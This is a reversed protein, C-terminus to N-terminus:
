FLCDNKGSVFAAILERHGPSLPSPGRMVAQTFRALHDTAEPKWAFLHWIEPIPHGAKELQDIRAGLPGPPRHAAVDHLHMACVICYPGTSRKSISSSM